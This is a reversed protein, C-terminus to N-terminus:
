DSREVPQRFPSVLQDECQVFIVGAVKVPLVGGGVTDGCLESDVQALVRDIRRLIVQRGAPLLQIIANAGAKVPGRVRFVAIDTRDGIRIPRIQFKDKIRFVTFIM